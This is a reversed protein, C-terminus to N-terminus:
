RCVRSGRLQKVLKFRYELNMELQLEGVQDLEMPRRTRFPEQDWRGRARGHVSVAM